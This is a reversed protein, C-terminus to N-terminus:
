GGQWGGPEAVVEEGRAAARRTSACLDGEEWATRWGRGARPREWFGRENNERQEKEEAGGM